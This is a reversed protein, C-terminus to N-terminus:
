NKEKSLSLCLELHTHTHPPPTNATMFYMYKGGVYWCKM